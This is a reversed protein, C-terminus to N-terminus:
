KKLYNAKSLIVNRIGGRPDEVDNQYRPIVHIHAHMVTQGATVGLNIGVNFGDPKFKESLINKVRNIMMLCDTQEHLNLEFFDGVLRKPIVLAHGESVPFKDYVSFATASETVLERLENEAFFPSIWAKGINLTTYHQYEYIECKETEFISKYPLIVNCQYTNRKQKPNYLFGNQKIGRRVAFFAKGEPKLLESVIMLVRSQEEPLLSNLVYNCTVTDFIRKPLEPFYHPDYGTISYGKSQLFEIDKGLGCGINLIEGKLKNREFLVTTPLSLRTKEKVIQHTNPNLSNNYIM